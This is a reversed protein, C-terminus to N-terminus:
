TRTKTVALAFVYKAQGMTLLANTAASLTSGTQYIDDILLVSKGAAEAPDVSFVSSLLSARDGTAVQKMEPTPKIKKLAEKAYPIKLTSSMFQSVIDPANVKRELNSPPIAAIIDLEIAKERVFKCAIEALESGVFVDSMYKLKLLLEGVYPRQTDFGRDIGGKGLRSSSTTHLDLAWGQHWPGVLPIPHIDKNM